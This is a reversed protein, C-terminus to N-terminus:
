KQGLIAEANLLAHPFPLDVDECAPDLCEGCGRGAETRKRIAEADNGVQKMAEVIDDLELSQCACVTM